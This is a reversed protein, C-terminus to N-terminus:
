NVWQADALERRFAGTSLYARLRRDSAHPRVKAMARAPTDAETAYVARYAPDDPDLGPDTAIVIYGRRRSRERNADRVRASEREIEAGWAFLDTQGEANADSRSSRSM